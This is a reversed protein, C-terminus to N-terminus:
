DLFNSEGYFSYLYILGDLDVWDSCKVKFNTEFAIGAINNVRCTGNLPLQNMKLIIEKSATSSSTSVNLQVKLFNLNSYADFLFSSITLNATKM